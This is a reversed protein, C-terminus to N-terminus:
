TKFVLIPHLVTSFTQTGSGSALGLLNKAVGKEQQPPLSFHRTLFSFLLRLFLEDEM